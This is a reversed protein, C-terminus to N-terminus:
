AGEPGGGGADLCGAAFAVVVAVTMGIGVAAVGAVGSVGITGVVAGVVTGVGDAVAKAPKPAVSSWHVV